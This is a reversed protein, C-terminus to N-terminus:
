HDTSSTISTREQRGHNGLVCFIEISPFAGALTLIANTEAELTTFLQDTLSLDIYFAQGKYIHEGTVQDGLYNIILKNLGLSRKDQDRFLIIKEVWKNLREKYVDVNYISLGETWKEDVVEGVHADSRLAHFELNEKTRVMKPHRVPKFEIKEIAGLCNDVFIQAINRHHEVQTLLKRNQKILYEKRVGSADPIVARKMENWSGFIRNISTMAPRPSSLKLYRGASLDEGHELLINYLTERAEEDTWKKFRNHAM